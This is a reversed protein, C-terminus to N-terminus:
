SSGSLSPGTGRRIEPDRRYSSEDHGGASWRVSHADTRGEFDLSARRAESVLAALSDGLAPWSRWDGSVGRALWLSTYSVSRFDGRRDCGRQFRQQINGDRLITGEPSVLRRRNPDGNSFERGRGRGTRIAGCSFSWFGSALAHSVSALSWVVVAITYGLRTGIRDIVRGAIPM